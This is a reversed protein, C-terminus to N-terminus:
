QAMEQLDQHHPMAIQGAPLHVKTPRRRVFKITSLRKVELLAEQYKKANTNGEVVTLRGVGHSIMSDWVMVSVPHKM